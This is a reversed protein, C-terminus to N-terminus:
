YRIESRGHRYGGTILLAIIQYPVPCADGATRRHVDTILQIDRRGFPNNNLNGADSQRFVISRDATASYAYVADDRYGTNLNM